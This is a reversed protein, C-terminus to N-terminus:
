RAETSEKKQDTQREAGDPEIGFLGVPTGIDEPVRTPTDRNLVEGRFYAPQVARYIFFLIVGLLSAGFMLLFIGGVQWHPAFPLTYTTYSNVPKWYHVLLWPICAWLILGGLLPLIGRLWLNRASERLSHRWYWVCAFGTLGYYFAIFLSLATVSDGIVGNGTALENMTVYLAISVLGMAVTSVSPTLFRKQIKGFASPIARYVAMSLTTRATPLITTQTSAAASSLVMLLLLHTMFSGFGSTGFISHGLVSLVDSEHASNQLGIGKTGIGAYAQTSVVILAYTVLLIVTSLVAARGPIRHSDKTEENVSVATDWGWYIFLMLTFGAMFGAASLNHFPNFWSASPTLHGPPATGNGVKVLATISLILLMTLEIGLLVKQFNASVEIGVYCIATMVVIWAVGVVLVWGSNPANGIGNANFLLFVYQGAVQALSAMVLIDAAVIAWGGFWGSKPGFARTAWTFTTGCDPDAYNMEKYGYSILLMPIFALITIIPAQLGNIYIVVFGLTAALSYAPATSAVGVVTSSILGLAGGKLGKEGPDEHALTADLHVM